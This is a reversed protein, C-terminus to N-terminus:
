LNNLEKIAQNTLQLANYRWELQETDGLKPSKRSEIKSIQKILNDKRKIYDELKLENSM